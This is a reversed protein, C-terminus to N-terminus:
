GPGRPALRQLAAHRALSGPVDQTKASLFSGLTPSTLCFLSVIRKTFPFLGRPPTPKFPSLSLSALSPRPNTRLSLKIESAFFPALDNHQNSQVISASCNIRLPQYFKNVIRGNFSSKINESSGKVSIGRSNRIYGNEPFSLVNSIPWRGWVTPFIDTSATLEM